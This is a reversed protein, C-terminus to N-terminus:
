FSVAGGTQILQAHTSGSGSRCRLEYPRNAAENQGNSEVQIYHFTNSGNGLDAKDGLYLGSFSTVNNGGALVQYDPIDTVHTILRMELGYTSVATHHTAPDVMACEVFDPHRFLILHTNASAGAPITFNEVTAVLGTFHLAGFIGASRINGFDFFAQNAGDGQWQKGIRFDAGFSTNDQVTCFTLLGSRGGLPVTFEAVAHDYENSTDGVAAFVDLLRLLKGPVLSVVTSGIVNGDQTLEVKV